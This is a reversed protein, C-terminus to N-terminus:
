LGKLPQHSARRQVEGSVTALLAKYSERNAVAYSKSAVTLIGVDSLKKGYAVIAVRKGDSSSLFAQGNLKLPASWGGHVAEAELLKQTSVEDLAIMRYTHRWAKGGKYEAIITVGSKSFVCAEPDSDKVKTPVREVVPGYRAICEELTEGVRAHASICSLVVVVFPFISKM